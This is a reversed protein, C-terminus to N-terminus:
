DALGPGPLLSPRCLPTGPPSPRVHSYAVQWVFNGEQSKTLQQFDVVQANLDQGGDVGGQGGLAQQKPLTGDNIARRNRRRWGGPVAGACTVWLHALGLPAILPAVTHFGMGFDICVRSQQVAYRRLWHGLLCAGTTRKNTEPPWKM